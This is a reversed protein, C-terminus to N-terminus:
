GWVAGFSSAGFWHVKLELGLDRFCCDGLGREAGVRQISLGGLHWTKEVQRESTWEKPQAHLYRQLTLM